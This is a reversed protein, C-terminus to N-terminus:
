KKNKKDKKAKKTKLAELDVEEVKKDSPAAVWVVILAIFLVVSISFLVIALINNQVWKASGPITDTPNRVLIVQYASVTTGVLHADTVDLKVFYTGTKQPCFGLSSDPNWAYANDTKDWEEDDKGVESNYVHIEELCGSLWAELNGNAEDVMEVLESYSPVTKGEPLKSPNFYYLTYDTTYGDLAVIDFSSVSYTKDRQGEKQSGVAEISPGNYGVSFTFEPIENIDWVNSTTLSVLEGDENFYKMENNAADKAIVRFRYDGVENVEIRLNNYRLSTTSSASGGAATGPKYYYIDFRLNRYDAYDSSILGRLSPLYIYAGDGASVGEAAEDLAVQYAEAADTAEQSVTNTGETAQIGIYSPGEALLDVVIYDFASAEGEGEAPTKTGLTKVVEDNAAYWTLYVFYDSHSGDDLKFRISVYAEEAGDDSTPMFFTSTTLTKYDGASAGEDPKKYSEGDSTMFYSRTVSVSDDCVDIAEYSLSFRQGLRFSYVKENLVLVPNANDEVRDDSNINFTQGNLSKMLVLQETAESEEPLYSKFSIPTQPTSAASSRYEIFYGGINTFKGLSVSEGGFTLLVEFEGINCGQESLELTLDATTDTIEVKASDPIEGEGLSANRVAATLKGAKNEFVVANKAIGDKSINEEESEFTIEFTEFNIEPFAFGMSFFKEAGPNALASGSAEAKEYWKLALDRRYHVSGEDRLTFQVFYSGETADQPKNTGVEGGTGAAFITDPAYAQANAGMRASPLMGIALGLTLVLMLALSVITIFRLRTKSMYSVGYPRM